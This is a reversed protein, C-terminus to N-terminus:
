NPPNYVGDTVPPDCTGGFTEVISLVLGDAVASTFPDMDRTIVDIHDGVFVEIWRNRPNGRDEGIFMQRSKGHETIRRAPHSVNGDLRIYFRSQDWNWVVTGAEGMFDELFTWLEYDKRADPVPRDNFYIFRDHAM